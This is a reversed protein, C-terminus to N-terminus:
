YRFMVRFRKNNGGVYTIKVQIYDGAPVTGGGVQTTPGCTTQTAAITCTAVDANTTADM